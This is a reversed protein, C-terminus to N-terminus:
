QVIIEVRRNKPERVGDKTSVLLQDEGRGVVAISAQNIGDRLLAERVAEARQQSLTMNYANNGTTDAHGAVMVKADPHARAAAAAERVVVQNDASLAARDNAFFLMFNRAPQQTQPSAAAVVAQTRDGCAALLLAASAAALLPKFM